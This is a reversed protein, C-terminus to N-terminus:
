YNMTRLEGDLSYYFSFTTGGNEPELDIFYEAKSIDGDDPYIISALSLRPNELSKEDKLQKKSKEILEGLTRLNIEDKLQFMFDAAKTGEPIELIIDSNQQWIGQSQTWEGMQLSEPDKTVTVNIINGITEDHLITIDTFYADNGFEDKIEQEIESFGEANAEQNGGCSILTSILALAILSLKLHKM